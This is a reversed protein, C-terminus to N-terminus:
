PRFVRIHTTTVEVHVGQLTRLFDVFSATDDVNFVGSVVTGRLAPTEIEIPTTTYRNFEAAVTSLPERDFAIQHHLWATTRNTDVDSPASPLEGRVVRVQQGASVPMSAPGVGAGASGGAPRVTVRGEIVTVLTSDGQLYVDFQTGVAVVKASGATVQFPRAPDHAVQFIVQGHEITVARGAPGFRVAVSTDTNLELTSGDSLPQELRQGHQTSFRLVSAAVPPPVPPTPGQHVIAVALIGLSAAAAFYMWARRRTPRPVPVAAARRENISVVPAPDARVVPASDEQTIPPPEDRAEQVLADVSVTPDATRQLDSALRMLRGYADTHLPSERLWAKFAARQAADPDDRNAVFWEAAQAVIRKRDEQTV